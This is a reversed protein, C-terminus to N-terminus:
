PRTLGASVQNTFIDGSSNKVQVTVIINFTTVGAPIQYPLQQASSQGNAPLDGFVIPLASSLTVNGTGGTTQFAVATVRLDTGPTPTPNTFYVKSQFAGSASAAMPPFITSITAPRLVPVFTATATVPANVTVPTDATTVTQTKGGTLIQVDKLGFGSNATAIIRVQTGPAYWTAPFGPVGGAAPNLM